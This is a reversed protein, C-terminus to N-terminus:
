PAFERVIDDTGDTSGDSAVIVELRDAPYDLALTEDLKRRIDAAENYACIIISVTPEIPARRVPRGRVTAVAWLVLRYGAYVWAIVALVGLFIAEAIVAGGPRRLPAQPAPDPAPGVRGARHM